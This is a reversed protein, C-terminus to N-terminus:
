RFLKDCFECKFNFTEKQFKHGNKHLQIHKILNPNNRFTKECLHCKFNRPKQLTANNPYLPIKLHVQKDHINLQSVFLFKKNCKPCTVPAPAGHHRIM